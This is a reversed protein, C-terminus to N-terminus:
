DTTADLTLVQRLAKSLSTAPESPATATRWGVHQDPRVLLAGDPGIESVRAWQGDPDIFDRGARVHRVPVGATTADAWAADRGAILTFGEDAILDLTSCRRGDREIWAHPLRAGPRTTPVYDRVPNAPSPAPAGDAVLAGQEYSIGLQLGLMDFHDQQGAIADRIRARAAPDGLREYLAARSVEVDHTLGLEAMLDFLKMANVFSQEANREAIPRRETEYTDLLTPPASGDGVARLKWALNHADQIGTNMGM